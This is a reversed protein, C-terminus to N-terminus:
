IEEEYVLNQIHLCILRSVLFARASKEIYWSVNQFLPVCIPKVLNYLFHYM